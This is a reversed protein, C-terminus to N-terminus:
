LLELQRLQGKKKRKKQSKGEAGRQAQIRELLVSAPEDNPDQPVLRGEFARKLVSQRLREARRLNAEVADELAAVVSLRREVEGVIRHQESLPPLPFHFDRIEELHLDPRGIGKIRKQAQSYVVLSNLCHEIYKPLILKQPYKLLALSVYISFKYNLINIAAFGYTVGVKTYLIDGKEPKCRKIHELYQEKTTYKIDEDYIKGPRVNKVSLFPVGDDVYEPRYHTGDTILFCIQELRTWEWEEPLELLDETEPLEPEKYRCKWKDNKPLYPAYEVELLDQWEDDLIDRIRAPLGAAKRKAQAAKKKAKVIEKQWQEEEWRQRRETLIRQLLVDAPEYGLLEHITKLEEPPLLRGECAAKLISAKYRQLNAQARELAAVAADLRTFQTEIEAAIRKQEALLRDSLSKGNWKRGMKAAWTTIQTNNKALYLGLCPPKALFNSM